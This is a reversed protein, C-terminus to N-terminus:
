IIIVGNNKDQNYLIESNNLVVTKDFMFSIYYATSKNWKNNIIAAMIEATKKKGFVKIYEKSSIFEIIKAKVYDRFFEVTNTEFMIIDLPSKIDKQNVKATKKIIKKVIATQPIEKAEEVITIEVNTLKPDIRIDYCQCHKKYINVDEYYWQIDKIDNSTTCIPLSSELLILLNESM